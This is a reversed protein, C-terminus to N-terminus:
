GHHLPFPRPLDELADGREPILRLGHVRDELGAVPDNLGRTSGALGSDTREQGRPNGPAHQDHDVRQAQDALPHVAEGRPEGAHGHSLQAAALFGLVLLDHHGRQGPQGTPPPDLPLTPGPM